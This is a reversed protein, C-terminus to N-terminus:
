FPGKFSYTGGVGGVGWSTRTSVLDWAELAGSPIEPGQSTRPQWTCAMALPVRNPQEALSTGSNLCGALALYPEAFTRRLLFDIETNRKTEWVLRFVVLLQPKGQPKGGLGFPNGGCPSPLLLWVWTPYKM